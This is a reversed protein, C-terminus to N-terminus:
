ENACPLKSNVLLEDSCLIVFEHNYADSRSKYWVWDPQFGVGTISQTSGNGTYLVSNFFDTPKDIPSYSM